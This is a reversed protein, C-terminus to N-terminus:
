KSFPHVFENTNYRVRVTPTSGRQLHSTLQYPHNKDEVVVVRESVVEDLVQALHSSLDFDAAVILNGHSSTSAMRGSRITTEGPGHVGRFGADANFQDAM